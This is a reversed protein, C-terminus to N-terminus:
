GVDRAILYEMLEDPAFLQLAANQFGLRDRTVIGDARMRQAAEHLVADEYDPLDSILADQLIDTRVPAIYFMDFLARLHQRSEVESFRKSIFYYITTVTTACLVGDLQGQRAYEILRAAVLAYPQRDLLRDLIINTDFLIRM